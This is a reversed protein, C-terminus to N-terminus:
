CVQRLREVSGDDLVRVEFRRGDPLHQFVKGAEDGVGGYYVPQGAALHAAIERQVEERSLEGALAVWRTFETAAWPDTRAEEDPLTQAM